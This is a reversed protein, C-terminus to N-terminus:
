PLITSDYPNYKWIHPSIRTFHKDSKIFRVYPLSDSIYYFLFLYLPSNYLRLLEHRRENNNGRWFEKWDDYSWRDNFYGPGITPLKSFAYVWPTYLADTAMTYRADTTTLAQLEDREKSYLQPKQNWVIYFNYAMFGMVLICLVARGIRDSLFYRFFYLLAYSAFFILVIDLYILHRHQYIFPFYSLIFLVILFLMLFFLRSARVFFMEEAPRLLFLIIGSFAFPLLYIIALTFIEFDIYLGGYQAMLLPPYQTLLWGFSNITYMYSYITGPDILNLSQLAILFAVVAVIMIFGVEREISRTRILTYLSRLIVFILLAIVFGFFTPPHIVAGFGATFLALFSRRHLLALTALLFVVAFMTQYFMWWFALFQPTSVAFLFLTTAVYPLYDSSTLTRAVMYLAGVSLFQVLLYLGHLVGGSSVGLWVFPVWLLGRIFRHGEFGQEQQLAEIAKLYFGTDYGLPAGGYRIFPLLRTIIFFIIFFLFLYFFIRGYSRWSRRDNKEYSATAWVIWFIFFAYLVFIIRASLSDIRSPLFFIIGASYIIYAFFTRAVFYRKIRLIFNYTGTVTSIDLM